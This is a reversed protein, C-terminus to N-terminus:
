KRNYQTAIDNAVREANIALQNLREEKAIQHSNNSMKKCYEFHETFSDFEKVEVTDNDYHITTEIKENIKRVRTNVINM